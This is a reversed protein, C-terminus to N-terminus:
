ASHPWQQRLPTTGSVELVATQVPGVQRRHFYDAASSYIYHEAERVLGARVPNLHIYNLRQLFFKDSRLEIAHNEHTWVQHESARTNHAASFEFIM